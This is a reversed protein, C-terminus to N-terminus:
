EELIERDTEEEQEQKKKHKSCVACFVQTVVVVLLVSGVICVFVWIYSNSKEAPLNKLEEKSLKGDKDVDLDNFKEPSIPEVKVPQPNIPLQDIPPNGRYICGNLLLLLGLWIYRM